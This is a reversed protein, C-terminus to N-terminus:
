THEEKIRNKEIETVVERQTKFFSDLVSALYGELHPIQSVFLMNKKCHVEILNEEKNFTYYVNCAYHHNVMNVAKQMYAFNELDGDMPLVHLWPYHVNIFLCDDVAEIAFHAGQYSFHIIEEDEDDFACGMKRLTELVLRRTEPSQEVVPESTANNEAEDVTDREEEDEQGKRGALCDILKYFFVIGALLVLAHLFAKDM